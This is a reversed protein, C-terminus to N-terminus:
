GSPLARVIYDAVCTAVAENGDASYHGNGGRVFRESYPIKALCPTPDIYPEGLDQLLMRGLSAKTENLEFESSSSPLFLFFVRSGQEKIHSL